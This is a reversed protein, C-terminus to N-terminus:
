SPEHVSYPLRIPTGISFGAGTAAPQLRGARAPWTSRSPQRRDAPLGERMAGIATAADRGRNVAGDLTSRHGLHDSSRTLRRRDSPEHCAYRAPGDSQLDLALGADALRGDHERRDPCGPLASIPDELDLGRLGLRVQRESGEAVEHAADVLLHAVGQRGRLPPCEFDRQQEPLRVSRCVRSRRGAREQGDHRDEAADIWEDDHDVVRLPQVPGGTTRQLEQGTPQRLPHSEDDRPPGRVASSTREVKFTCERCTPTSCRTTPGSDSAARCWRM